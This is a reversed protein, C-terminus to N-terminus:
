PIYNQPNLRLMNAHASEARKTESGRMRYTFSALHSLNKASTSGRIRQAHNRAFRQVVLECALMIAHMGECIRESANRSVSLRGLPIFMKTVRLRSTKGVSDLVTHPFIPPRGSSTQWLEARTHEASKVRQEETNWGEMEEGERTTRGRAFLTIRAAAARGVSHSKEAFLGCKWRRRRMM